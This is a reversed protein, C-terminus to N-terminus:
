KNQMMQNLINQLGDNGYVGQLQSFLSAPEYVSQNRVTDLWKDKVYLQPRDIIRGKTDFLLRPTRKKRLKERELWYVRGYSFGILENKRINSMSILLTVSFGDFQLSEQRVNAVAVKSKINENGTFDICNLEYPIGSEKLDKFIKKRLKSMQKKDAVKLKAEQLAVNNELSYLNADQTTQSFYNMDKELSWPLHQMFRSIGGCKKSTVVKYSYKHETKSFQKATQKGSYMCIVTGIPINELAFLGYGVQKNMYAIGVSSLPNKLRRYLTEFSIDGNLSQVARSCLDIYKMFSFNDPLQLGEFYICKFQKYFEEPTLDSRKGGLAPPKDFVPIKALRKGRLLVKSSYSVRWPLAKVVVKKEENESTIPNIVMSASEGNLAPAHPNLWRAYEYYVSYKEIKQQLIAESLDIIAEKFMGLKAFVLGRRYITQTIPSNSMLAINFVDLAEKYEHKATHLLGREYLIRVHINQDGSMLKQAKSLIIDALKYQGSSLYTNALYTLLYFGYKKEIPSCNAKTFRNTYKHIDYAFAYAFLKSLAKDLQSYVKEQTKADVAVAAHHQPTYSSVMCERINGKGVPKPPLKWVSGLPSFSTKNNDREIMFFVRMTGDYLKNKYKVYQSPTYAEVLFFPTGSESYRWCSLNLSKKVITSIFSIPDNIGQMEKSMSKIYNSSKPDGLLLYRLKKDLDKASVVEVGDGGASAPKKLVYYQAKIDEKIRKSLQKDYRLPYTYTTPRYGVNKTEEAEVMIEHMVQKDNCMMMVSLSDDMHLITNDTPLREKGAYIARYANVKDVAIDNKSDDEAKLKDAFLSNDSGRVGFHGNLYTPISKRGMYSIFQARINKQHLQDYSSTGSMTGLGFELIKIQQDKTFKLDVVAYFIKAAIHDACRERLKLALVNQSSILLLADLKKLAAMFKNQRYYVNALNYFAKVFTPDIDLLKKFCTIAKNLQDLQMYALGKNHWAAKYSPDITIAKEFLEIAGKYDKKKYLANGSNKLQEVESLTNDKKQMKNNQQKKTFSNKIHHTMTSHKRTITTLILTKKHIM